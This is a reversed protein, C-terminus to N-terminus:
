KEYYHFVNYTKIKKFGYKKYFLIAKKNKNYTGVIISKYKPFKIQLNDIIRSGFGKGSYNKSISILDIFINRKKKLVCLLGVIKNKHTASYIRKDKSNLFYSSIWSLRIKKVVVKPIRKDLDFRSSKMNKVCIDVLKQKDKEKSISLNFDNELKIKKSDIKRIFIINKGIFKFELNNKKNVNKVKNIEKTKCTILLNKKINLKDKSLHPSKINFCNINSVKSLWFDKILM